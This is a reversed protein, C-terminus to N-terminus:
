WGEGDTRAEVYSEIAAKAALYNLRLQHFVPDEIEEWDSYGDLCYDLGENDMRYAVENFHNTM